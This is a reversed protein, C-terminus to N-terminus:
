MVSLVILCSRLLTTRVGSVCTQFPRQCHWCRRRQRNPHPFSIAPTAYGCYHQPTHLRRQRQVFFPRSARRRHYFLASDACFVGERAFLNTHIGCIVLSITQAGHLFCRPIQNQYSRSLSSVCATGIITPTTKSM